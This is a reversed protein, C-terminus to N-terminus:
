AAARVHDRGYAKADNLAHDARGLVSELPEGPHRAALGASATQGGTVALRLRETVEAASSPARRNPVGDAPRDGGYTERGGDVVVEAPWAVVLVGVTTGGRLLPQLLISSAQGCADSLEPGAVARTIPESFLRGCGSRLTSAVPDVSDIAPLLGPPDTGATGTCRPVGNIPGPEFLIAATADSIALAARRIDTRPEPGAFLTRVVVGIREHM